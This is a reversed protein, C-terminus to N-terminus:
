VMDIPLLPLAANNHSTRRGHKSRPRGGLVMMVCKTLLHCDTFDHMNIQKPNRKTRTNSLTRKNKFTLLPARNIRGKSMRTPM